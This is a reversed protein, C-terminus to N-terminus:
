LKIKEKHIAMSMEQILEYNKEIANGIVVVDAGAQCNAYAKEATNIGGGVIIPLNTNQAVQAIMAESIPYKAGSGADMYILHKGLFEGAMATCVAIDNKDRPIPASHSMYSVATPAGGDIVMYGTSIIELGSEKIRPASIVHAGILLEPNRGSILSLYLLADAEKSVQSPSGPFLLVPIASNKKFQIICQDMHNSLMLSGGVFLFDVSAENCKMALEEVSSLSIDDPDMLVAFSKQGLRKRETFSNYVSTKTM